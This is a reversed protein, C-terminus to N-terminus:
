VNAGGTVITIFGCTHSRMDKHVAFASDVYWNINVSKDISLILPLGITGQIYKIVRELNKYDDTDPGIVRTFLLTVALHIDLRERNSLYILQALFHRFLDADAQSLKTADEAIDFLHHSDSTDSEGQM